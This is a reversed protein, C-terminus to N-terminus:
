GELGVCAVGYVRGAARASTGLKPKKTLPQAGDDDDDDDDDDDEDADEEEDSDSMDAARAPAAAAAAAATAVPLERPHKGLTTEPTAIHAADDEVECAQEKAKAEVEAADGRAAEALAAGTDSAHEEGHCGRADLLIDEDAIGAADQSMSLFEQLTINGAKYMAKLQSMATNM